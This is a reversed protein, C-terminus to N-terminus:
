SGRIRLFGTRNPIKSIRCLIICRIVVKFDPHKFAYIFFNICSNFSLIVAAYSTLRVCAACILSLGYPTVCLYFICVVYFMNKTVEVQRRNLKVRLQQGGGQPDTSNQNGTQSRGNQGRTSGAAAAAQQEATPAWTHMSSQETPSALAKVKTRLHLWIKFYSTTIIVTPIPYLFSSLLLDYGKATPHNMVKLCTMYKTSYGLKGFNTYLPISALSLPIAWLLILAIIIKYPKFMNRYTGINTTILVVRNVAICSLTFVSTGVCTILFFGCSVCLWDPLPWGDESVFAVIVWVLNFSTLLDAVSLNVIFINVSSRLKQSLLVSLITVFNGFVGALVVFGLLTALVVREVFSTVPGTRPSIMSVYAEEETTTPVIEILDTMNM